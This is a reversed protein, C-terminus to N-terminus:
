AHHPFRMRIAELERAMREADRDVYDSYAIPPQWTFLRALRGGLRSIWNESM